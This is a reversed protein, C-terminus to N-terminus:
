RTREALWQTTPRVARVWHGLAAEAAEDVRGEAVLTAIAQHESRLTEIDAPPRSWLGEYHRIRARLRGLAAAVERNNHGGTLAEHWRRDLEWRQRATLGAVGLRAQLDLLPAARERIASGSLRIALGELAGIVPFVDRISEATLAPVRFGRRPLADVMRDCALATLAERVPTRSIGLARALKGEDLRQGSQLRGDGLWEELQERAQDRLNRRDIAM